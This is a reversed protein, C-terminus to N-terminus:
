CYNTKKIHKYEDEMVSPLHVKFKFTASWTATSCASHPLYAVHNATALYALALRNDLYSPPLKRKTRPRRHRGAGRSVSVSGVSRSDHCLVFYCGAM